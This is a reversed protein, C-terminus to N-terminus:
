RTAEGSYENNTKQPLPVPNMVDDMDDQTSMRYGATAAWTAMRPDSSVLSLKRETKSKAVRETAITKELDDARHSASVVLAKLYLAGLLQAFLITGAISAIWTMRFSRHARRSALRASQREDRSAERALAEWERYSRPLAEDDAQREADYREAGYREANHRSRAARRENFDTHANSTHNHLQENHTLRNQSTATAANETTPQASSTRASELNHPIELEDISYEIDQQESQRQALAM